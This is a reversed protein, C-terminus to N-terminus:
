FEFTKELQEMQLKIEHVDEFAKNLIDIVTNEDEYNPIQELYGITLGKRKHVQGAYGEFGALIKMLTTKGTGNRGILAIKDKTKVDFTVNEFIKDAGYMKCLNNVGLEIM